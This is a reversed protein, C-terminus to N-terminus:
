LGKRFGFDIIIGVFFLEVAQHLIQLLPAMINQAFFGNQVYIVVQEYEDVRPTFHLFLSMYLPFGVYMLKM